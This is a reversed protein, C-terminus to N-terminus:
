YVHYIPASPLAEIVRGVSAFCVFWAGLGPRRVEHMIVKEVSFRLGLLM